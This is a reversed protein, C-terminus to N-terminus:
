KGGVFAIMKYLLWVGVLSQRKQGNVYWIMYMDTDDKDGKDDQDNHHHPHPYDCRDYNHYIHDLTGVM